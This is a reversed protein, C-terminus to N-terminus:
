EAVALVSVVLDIPAATVAMESKAFQLSRFVHIPIPQNVM